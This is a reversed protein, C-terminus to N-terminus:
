RARAPAARVRHFLLRLPGARWSRSARVAQGARAIFGGGHDDFRQHLAGAVHAHVVRQVEFQQALGAVLEAHVQDGVLDRHAETAGARQEGAFLRPMVGSKM